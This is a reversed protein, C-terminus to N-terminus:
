KKPARKGSIPASMGLDANSITGDFTDAGVKVEIKWTRVMGDPPSPVAADFALTEGDFTIGTAPADTFMGNAESIKIAPKGEVEAAAMTLNYTEGNAYVEAAWDGYVKTWDPAKPAQPASWAAAAFAVVLAAALFPVTKKM